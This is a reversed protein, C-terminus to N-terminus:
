RTGPKLTLTVQGAARKVLIKIENTDQAVLLQELSSDSVKVGNVELILDNVLLGSTAAPSAPTIKTVQAGTDTLGKVKAENRSIVLYEFGIFPRTIKGGALYSKLAGDIAEAALIQGSSGTVMGIVLGQLNVLPGGIYDATLDADTTISNSFIETSLAAGTNINNSFTKSILGSAFLRTFEQNTKGLAFVRQATQMNGANSFQAVPLDRSSISIIALSSKPDLARVQGAYVTGNDTVVSVVGNAPLIEKVTFILGDSTIILGNGLFKADVGSSYISVVVTQAQKTLEILNVGENLRVEERRTIVIPANSHLKSVWAFGPVTSLYPIVWRNFIIAGATGFVLAALIVYTILKKNM